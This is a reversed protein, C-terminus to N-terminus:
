LAISTLDDATLQLLLTPIVLQSIRSKEAPWTDNPHSQKIKRTHDLDPHDKAPSQIQGQQMSAQINPAPLRQSMWSSCIQLAVGAVTSTSPWFQAICAQSAHSKSTDKPIMFISQNSTVARAYLSEHAEHVLKKQLNSTPTCIRVIMLGATLMSVHDFSM